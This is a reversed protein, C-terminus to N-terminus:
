SPKATSERVILDLPITAEQFAEEPNEIKSLLIETSRQGVREYNIVITTLPVPITRGIDSDNWGVLSIDQPIRLGRSRFVDYLGVAIEDSGCVVATPRSNMKLLEEGLRRGEEETFDDGTLIHYQGRNEKVVDWMALRLGDEQKKIVPFKKEDATVLAIDTHGLEVLHKGVAFAGGLLDLHVAGILPHDIPPDVWLVHTNTALDKIEETLLPQTFLIVGDVEAPNFVKKLSLNQEANENVAFLKLHYQTSELAKQIGALRRTVVPHTLQSMSSIVVGVNWTKSKVQMKESVFRGKGQRGCIYGEDQLQKLSKIITGRSVGFSNALEKDTLIPQTPNWEGSTVKNRLVDTIYSSNKVEKLKPM